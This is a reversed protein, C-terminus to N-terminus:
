PRAHPLREAETLTHLLATPDPTLGTTLADAAPLGARALLGKENTVWEGRAALVAHATQTAALALAGAVQTVAGRPAHAQARSGGLTVARM